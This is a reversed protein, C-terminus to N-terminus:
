VTGTRQRLAEYFLVAATVSVNLSDATGLMPLRIPHINDGAWTDSLGEAESGLIIASSGRFNAQTYEVAGDVRAAFIQFERAVLWDHIEVATSVAIPMTFVTGLSSRICNPNHLDTRLDAILVAAVGAADASRLIAGVNGPKEIGDLVAILSGSAISLEGLSPTRVRAIAIVGDGRDGYSLKEFVAPTVSWLVGGAQSLRQVARRADGTHLLPECVYAEIIELGADTARLSERGGDIIIRQQKDRQRRDRLKVADKVRQNQPSTITREDPM